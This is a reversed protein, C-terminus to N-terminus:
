KPPLVEKLFNRVDDMEKPSSSHGMKNYTQFKAKNNISKLLNHTMVGIPYQVVMDADGHGQLIPIEKNANIPLEGIKKHLPMWTSLAIIGALPSQHKLGAHLAVAGGQSFGGVVIRNSPIGNKVEDDILKKVMEASKKIGEEDEAAENPDLSKIDFWSPMTMGFNLTVKQNPANPCIVKLYDFKIEDFGALWGHGTDGLGHLFIVTATHAKKPLITPTAMGGFLRGLPGAIIALV